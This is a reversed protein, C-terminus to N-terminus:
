LTVDYDESLTKMGRLVRWWYTFTHGPWLAFVKGSPTQYWSRCNEPRWISKDLEVHCESVFRELPEPRCEM